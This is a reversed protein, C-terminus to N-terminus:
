LTAITITGTDNDLEHLLDYYAVRTEVPFLAIRSDQTGDRLTTDYIAVPHTM